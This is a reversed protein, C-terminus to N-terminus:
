IPNSRLDKNTLVGQKLSYKLTEYNITRVEHVHHQKYKYVTM